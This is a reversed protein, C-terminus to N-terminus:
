SVDEIIKSIESFVAQIFQKATCSGKAKELMVEIEPLWPLLPPQTTGEVGGGPGGRTPDPASATHSVSAQTRSVELQLCETPQTLRVLLRCCVLLTNTM